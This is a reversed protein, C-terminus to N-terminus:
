NWPRSLNVMLKKAAPVQVQKCGERLSLGFRLIGTLETENVRQANEVWNLIDTRHGRKKEKFKIMASPLTFRM